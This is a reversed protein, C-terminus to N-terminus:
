KTFSEAEIFIRKVEPHAERIDREIRDVVSAVDSASLDDEFQLDLNLLVEQPGFHMTLPQNVEKVAADEEVLRRIDRVVEEDASEGLLLKRSEYALFIAVSALTFGILISAVGDYLSNRTQQTLFVGLLALLLGILAASDEALVVFVTPEKSSRIAEWLSEGEKIPLFERLAITWSVGEVILGIGLVAYNWVPSSIEEPHQLHSIGEYISLGGGIAFLIIAVILGWFYIEQGHGFPHSKDPPRQSLNSGLLLLGQNGTDVISHIGESLMASSGTFAAATFKAVAMIFNATIAGYVTIPKEHSSASSKSSM